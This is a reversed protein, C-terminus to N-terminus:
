SEKAFGSDKPLGFQCCNYNPDRAWGSGTGWLQGESDLAM